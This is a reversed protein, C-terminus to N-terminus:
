TPRRDIIIVGRLDGPRLAAGALDALLQDVVENALGPGSAVRSPTGAPGFSMALTSYGERWDADVTITTLHERGTHHCGDCGWTTVHQAKTTAFGTCGRHRQLQAAALVRTHDIAPNPTSM